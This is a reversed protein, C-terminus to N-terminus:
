GNNTSREISFCLTKHYYGTDDEYLDGSSRSPQWMFGNATLIKKIQELINTYNGKSFVDFDYYEVYNLLSDDASFTTDANVQQYTVYTTEAGDYRLFAVPIDVGDVNFDAFLQEILANISNSM